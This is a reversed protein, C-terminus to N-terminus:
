HAPRGGEESGMIVGGRKLVEAEAAAWDDLWTTIELKTGWPDGFYVSVAGTGPHGYFKGGSRLAVGKARLHGQWQGLEELNRCNFAYHFMRPTNTPGVPEGLFLSLIQSGIRIDVHPRMPDEHGGWNRRQVVEAGLVDVYWREAEVMNPVSFAIHDWGTLRLPASSEPVPVAEKPPDVVTMTDIAM